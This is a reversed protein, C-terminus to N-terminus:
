IEGEHYLTYVDDKIELVQPRYLKVYTEYSISDNKRLFINYLMHTVHDKNYVNQFIHMSFSSTDKALYMM